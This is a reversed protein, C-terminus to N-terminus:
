ADGTSQAAAGRDSTSSRVLSRIFDIADGVRYLVRTKSFSVYKPGTGNARRARLCSISVRLKTAMEGPTLLEDPGFDVLREIAGSADDPTFDALDKSTGDAHKEQNEQM